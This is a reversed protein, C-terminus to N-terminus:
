EGGAKAKSTKTIQEAMKLHDQLTPLTSSAFNKVNTDHGSNAEHQFDAVDKKHDKVMSKMYAADFQEGSLKSLREKEAQDKASLSDPVAVGAQAALQKLQDNAKSHDDVMRQGFEKVENSSARETALKGFEVEALGGQAADALFQKDREQSGQQQNVQQDIQQQTQWGGQQQPRSDTQSGMGPRAQAFVNVSFALALSAVGACIKTSTSM